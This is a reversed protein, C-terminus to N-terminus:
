SGAISQPDGSLPATPGDAVVRTPLVTTGEDLVVPDVIGRVVCVGDVNRICGSPEGILISQEPQATTDGPKPSVGSPKGPRVHLRHGRHKRKHQAEVGTQTGDSLVVWNAVVPGDAAAAEATYWGAQGTSPTTRYPLAAVAGVPTFTGAAGGDTVDVTLQAGGDSHLVARDGLLTGSFREGTAADGDCVYASVQDGQALVAVLATSGDVRGVSDVLRPPAGPPAPKMTASVTGMVAALVAFVALVVLLTTRRRRTAPRDPLSTTAM